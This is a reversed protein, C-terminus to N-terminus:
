ASEVLVADPYVATTIQALIAEARRELRDRKSRDMENWGLSDWINLAGQLRVYEPDVELNDTDAAPLRAHRQGVIKVQRGSRLIGEVKTRELVLKKPTASADVSYWSVPLKVNFVGDLSGEVYVESLYAFATDTANSQPLEFVYVHDGIALWVKDWYATVASGSEIRLSVVLDSLNDALTQEISLPEGADGDWGGNGDHYDSNWTTIGDTLRIRVRSATTTYVKAKLTVRTGAFQPYDRISDSTLIAANTGDSIVRASYLGSYKIASQRSVLAGVGSLTWGDPASSTGDPWDEFTGWRGLRDDLSIGFDEKHSLSLRAVRRVAEDIASNVDTARVREWLEFSANTSPTTAFSPAVYLIASDGPSGPPYASHTLRGAGSGGGTYVYLDLGAGQAANRIRVANSSVQLPSGQTVAFTGLMLGTLRGVGQRVVNRTESFVPM